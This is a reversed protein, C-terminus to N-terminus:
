AHGHSLRGASSNRERSASAFAARLGSPCSETGDPFQRLTIMGIRHSGSAICANSFECGSCAPNTLFRRLERPDTGSMARGGAIPDFRVPDMEALVTFLGNHWTGDTAVYVVARGSEDAHQAAERMGSDMMGMSQRVRNVLSSDVVGDSTLAYWSEIWEGMRVLASEGTDLGRDFAPAWTLNVPSRYGGIRAALVSPDPLSDSALALQVIDGSHDVDAGGRLDAMAHYFADVNRWYKESHLATNAVIVFRVDDCPWEASAALIEKARAIQRDIKGVLSTSIEVVMERHDFAGAASTVIEGIERVSRAPLDLVNARGIGLALTDARGYSAAAECFGAALKAATTAPFARLREDKTLVCTPCTGSCTTAYETAVILYPIDKKPTV